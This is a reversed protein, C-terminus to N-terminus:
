ENHNENILAQFRDDNRISDFVMDTKAREQSEPNLNIAAKLNVIAFEAQGQLAYCYAKHYLVRDDNPKHKLIEDFSSIAEEQRNLLMLLLGCVFWTEHDDPRYKLAEDYSTIAEEYRNSKQLATGRFLWTEHDDPRYKLAEDYSTIAEEYRNLRQLVAGHLFWTEHNDPRYKLAEDYSTIAEEYRNLKQLVAGHLFWTGHDDPKRRIAENYSIIAEEYRKSLYLTTGRFFWAEYRDPKCRIAEDYSIIAEEYRKLLQLACGRLLWTRRLNPKCKLAEDYSVIAEEYRELRRLANGCGCFELALVNQSYHKKGVDSLKELILLVYKGLDVQHGRAEIQGDRPNLIAESRTLFQLSKRLKWQKWFHKVSRQRIFIRATAEVMAPHLSLNLSRLVEVADYIYQAEPYRKVAAKYRVRWTRDLTESFGKVSVVLNQDPIAVHRLYQVINDFTGDNKRAIHPFEEAKARLHAAKVLDSLLQEIAEDSPAELEYRHFRKWFGPYKEFQLKEIQSQEHSREPDRDSENRATAIVRVQRYEREYFELTKLLREQMPVELLQAPDDADKPMNRPNDKQYVWRNLNDLFFLLKLKTNPNLESPFHRPVDLWAGSQDTFNLITWGEANLLKALQAAERTKRLGTRGLILVWPKEEFARELEQRINRDPQRQLYPINTDALPDNENSGPMLQKLVTNSNPLIVEFPFDGSPIERYRKQKLQQQRHNLWLLIIGVLGGGGIFPVIIALLPTVVKWFDAQDTVQKFFDFGPM